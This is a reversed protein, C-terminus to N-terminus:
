KSQNFKFLPSSFFNILFFFRVMLLSNKGQIFNQHVKTLVAHWANGSSNLESFAITNMNEDHVPVIVQTHNAYSPNQEDVVTFVLNILDEGKQFERAFNIRLDFPIGRRLVLPSVVPDTSSSRKPRKQHAFEYQVTSHEISNRAHLDDISRILLPNPGSM